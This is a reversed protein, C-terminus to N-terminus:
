MVTVRKELVLVSGTEGLKRGIVRITAEGRHDFVLTISRPLSTPSDFCAEGVAVDYPTIEAILGEVHVETRDAQYCLDPGFTAFRVELPAGLLITSPALISTYFRTSGNEEVGIFGPSGRQPALSSCAFLLTSLLFTCAKM